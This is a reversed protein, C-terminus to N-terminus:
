KKHEPTKINSQTLQEETLIANEFFAHLLPDNIKLFEKKPAVHIIKGEHHFALRDGVEIASRIDHTVVISTAQLEKKTANILQNIQQATIPDLGTTPEDYLLIHPRYVILRALAARKRMGGSLDSPMSSQKGSLDVMDLANAVRRQIEEEGLQSEHQRLYFATNEGVNMSDFLAAGQFLMGMGKAVELRESSRLSSLAKGNIEITGKDPTEIGIIQKLLVSKGVGSRGLIVLTEGDLVELDLGKLVHLRGYSKYLKKVVIM